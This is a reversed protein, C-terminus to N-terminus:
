QIEGNHEGELEIVRARLAQLELEMAAIREDNYASQQPEGDTQAKTSALPNNPLGHTANDSFAATTNALDLGSIRPYTTTVSKGGNRCRQRHHSILPAFVFFLMSTNNVFNQTVYLTHKADINQDGIVFETPTCILMSQCWLFIGLAVGRAESFESKIDRARYAQICLIVLSVFMTIGLGRELVNGLTSTFDCHGYAIYGHETLPVEQWVPPDLLSLLTLLTVTIAFLIAFPRLVDQATVVKRQFGQAHFIENVRWLKSFLASLSLTSGLYQLWLWSVCAVNVHHSNLDNAGSPLIALAYLVSGACLMLLFVPQMARIVPANRNWVVWGGLGVALAISISMLVLGVVRVGNSLRLVAATIVPTPTPTPLISTTSM